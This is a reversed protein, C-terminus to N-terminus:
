REPFVSRVMAVIGTRVAEPLSPWAKILERLNPDSAVFDPLVAGSKAASSSPFSTNEPNPPSQEFGTAGMRAVALRGLVVSPPKANSLGVFLM